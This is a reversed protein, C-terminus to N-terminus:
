LSLIPRRYRSIVAGKTRRESKVNRFFRWDGDCSLCFHITVFFLWCIFLLWSAGDFFIRMIIWLIYKIKLLIKKENTGNSSVKQKFLNKKQIRFHQHNHHNLSDKKHHYTCHLTVIPMVFAQWKIQLFYCTRNKNALKYYQDENAYLIGPVRKTLFM